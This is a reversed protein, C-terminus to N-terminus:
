LTSGQSNIVFNFSEVACTQVVGGASSGKCKINKWYDTPARDISGSNDTTTLASSDATRIIGQTNFLGNTLSTVSLSEVIFRTDVIKTATATDVADGCFKADKYLGGATDDLKKWAYRAGSLCVVEWESPCNPAGDAATCVTPNAAQPNRVTATIDQNLRQVSESLQKRIAGRTYTRNIGVFGLTSVVLIVSFLTMALLLEILTFGQESVHETM